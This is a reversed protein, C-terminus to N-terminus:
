LGDCPLFTFEISWELYGLDAAVCKDPLPLRSASILCILGSQQQLSWLETVTVADQKLFLILPLDLLLSLLLPIARYAQFHPILSFVNPKSLPRQSTVGLPAYSAFLPSPSSLLRVTHQLHFGAGCVQPYRLAGDIM